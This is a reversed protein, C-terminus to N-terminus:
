RRGLHEAVLLWEDHDRILVSTGRGEGAAPRGNVTGTWEYSFLYVAVDKTRFVWFVDTM